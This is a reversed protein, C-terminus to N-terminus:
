LAVGNRPSGCLDFWIGSWGVSRMAPLGFPRGWRPSSVTQLIDSLLQCLRRPTLLNLNKTTCRDSVTQCWMLECSKSSKCYMAAASLRDRSHQYSKPSRCYMAASLRDCSPQCSKPSKCYMVASLRDCSPRCSKPSKCYMATSLSDRSHQYSKSSKCYMAASLRDCLPRRIAIRLDLIRTTCARM